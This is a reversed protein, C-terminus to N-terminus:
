NNAAAQPPGTHQQDADFARQLARTYAVIAWRDEPTIQSGYGAMNGKGYAITNYLQGNPYAAEQFQIAHLNAPAVWVTGSPNGEAEVLAQARLHVMGDGLGTEAHCPLCYVNYQAQGRRVFAETIDVADPYGANYTTAPEGRLDTTTSHGAYRVEDLNAQGFPVSGVPRPRMTRGDAFLPSAAQTNYRPQNDMDQFLHLRPKDSTTVRARAIVMLPLWSVLVAMTVIAILWTPPSTLHLRFDLDTLRM